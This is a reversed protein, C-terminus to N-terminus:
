GQVAEENRAVAVSPAQPEPANSEHFYRHQSVQGLAKLNCRVVTDVFMHTEERTNGEPIDVVYSELVLTGIVGDIEQPHLSTISRYNQLRHGGGLVRFSIIHEEEDLIELREISSTAPISSVLQVERITGVGGDGEVIDCTQIFRKYVQPKDFRRLISWVTALPVKIQQILISGCQHPQLEHRHFRCILDQQGELLSQFDASQRGKTQM